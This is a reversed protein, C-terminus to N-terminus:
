KKQLTMTTLSRIQTPASCPIITESYRKLPMKIAGAYTKVYTCSPPIWHSPKIVFTPYFGSFKKPYMMPSFCGNKM